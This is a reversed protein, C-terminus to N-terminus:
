CEFMAQGIINAQSFSLGTYSETLQNQLLKTKEKEKELQLLLQKTKEREEELEANIFKIEQQQDLIKFEKLQNENHLETFQKSFRLSLEKKLIENEKTLDISKISKLYETFSVLIKQLKLKITTYHDLTDRDNIQILTIIDWVLTPLMFPLTIKLPDKDIYDPKTSQKHIFNITYYSYETSRSSKVEIILSYGIKNIYIFSVHKFIIDM